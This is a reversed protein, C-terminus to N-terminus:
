FFYPTPIVIIVRGRGCLSRALVLLRIVFSALNLKRRRAPVNTNYDVCEHCALHPILTLTRKM